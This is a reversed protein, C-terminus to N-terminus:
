RNQVPSPSLRASLNPKCYTGNRVSQSTLDKASLFNIERNKLIHRLVYIQYYLSLYISFKEFFITLRQFIKTKKTTIKCLTKVCKPEKYLDFSLIFILLLARLLNISIFILIFDM